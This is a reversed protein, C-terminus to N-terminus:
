SFSEGGVLIVRFVNLDFESAKNVLNIAWVIKVEDGIILTEKLSFESSTSWFEEILFELLITGLVGHAPVTVRVISEVSWIDKSSSDFVDEVSSSSANWSFEDLFEGVGL